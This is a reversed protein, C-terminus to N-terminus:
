TRLWGTISYRPVAAFPAVYSVSHLQPVRFLHITNFGPKLALPVDGAAAHFQLLGGWDTRWGRTLNIVYAAVRDEGEIGDDHSTLFHGPLYRTAQGNVLRIEPQGTIARFTDLTSPHNLADIVRDLLLGRNKREAVDDSVILSDFLFQFGDRATEHVRSLFVQEKDEEIAAITAPSMDWAEKGQSVVRGWKVESDLHHHLAEAVNMDFLDGIRLIGSRGFSNAADAMRETSLAIRLDADRITM